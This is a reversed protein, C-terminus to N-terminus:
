KVILMCVAVGNMEKEGRAAHGSQLRELDGGNGFGAPRPRGQVQWHVLAALHMGTTLATRRADSGTAMARTVCAHMLAVLALVVGAMLICTHMWCHVPLVDICATAVRHIGCTMALMDAGM